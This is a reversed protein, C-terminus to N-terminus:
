TERERGRGVRWRGAVAEPRLGFAKDIGREAARWGERGSSGRRVFIVRLRVIGPRCKWHGERPERARRPRRQLRPLTRRNPM